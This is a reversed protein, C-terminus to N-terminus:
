DLESDAWLSTIDAYCLLAEIQFVDRAVAIVARAPVYWLSLNVSASMGGTDLYALVMTSGTVLSTLPVWNKWKGASVSNGAMM